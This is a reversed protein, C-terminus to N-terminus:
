NETLLFYGCTAKDSLILLTETPARCATGSSLKVKRQEKGREGKKEKDGLGRQATAEM